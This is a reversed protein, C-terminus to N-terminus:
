TRELARDLLIGADVADDILGREMAEAPVYSAPSLIVDSFYLPATACRMIECCDFPVARRRAARDSRDPRRGAGHPPPRRRLRTRMRRRHCAWKNGSRCAKPLLVREFVHQM